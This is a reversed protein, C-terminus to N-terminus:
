IYMLVFHYSLLGSSRSIFFINEVESYSFSTLNTLPLVSNFGERLAEMQRRVGTVLSWQVVSQFISVDGLYAGTDFYFNEKKTEM